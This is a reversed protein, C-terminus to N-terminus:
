QRRRTVSWFRQKDCRTQRRLTLCCRRRGVGRDAKGLGAAFHEYDVGIHTARSQVRDKIDAVAFSKTSQKRAFQAISFRKRDNLLVRVGFQM